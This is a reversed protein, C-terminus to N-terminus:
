IQAYLYLVELRLLITYLRGSRHFVGPRAPTDPRVVRPLSEYFYGLFVKRKEQVTACTAEFYRCRLRRCDRYMAGRIWLLLIIIEELTRGRLFFHLAVHRTKKILLLNEPGDGGYPM